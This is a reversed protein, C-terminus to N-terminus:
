IYSDCNQVNDMTRGKMQFLVNRLSSEAEPVDRELYFAPRHSIVLITVTVNM